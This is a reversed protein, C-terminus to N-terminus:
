GRPMYPTINLLKALEMEFEHLLELGRTGFETRLKDIMRPDELVMGIAQVVIIQKLRENIM